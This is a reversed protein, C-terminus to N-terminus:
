GRGRTKGSSLFLAAGYNKRKSTLAYGGLPNNQFIGDVKHIKPGRGLFIQDGFQAPQHFGGADGVGKFFPIQHGDFEVEPFQAVGGEDTGEIEALDHFGDLSQAAVRKEGVGVGEVGPGPAVRGAVQGGGDPITEGVAHHVRGQDDGIAQPAFGFPGDGQLSFVDFGGVDARLDYLRVGQNRHGMELAVFEGPEAPGDFVQAHPAGGAPSFKDLM